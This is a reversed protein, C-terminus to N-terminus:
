NLGVTSRLVEDLMSKDSATTPAPQENRVVEDANKPTSAKPEFFSVSLTESRVQAETSNPSKKQQAM